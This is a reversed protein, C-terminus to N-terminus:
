SHDGKSRSDSTTLQFKSPTKPNRVAELRERMSQADLGQQEALSSAVALLADTREPTLGADRAATFVRSLLSSVPDIVRRAGAVLDEGHALFDNAIATLGASLGKATAVANFNMRHEALAYKAVLEHKKATPLDRWIRRSRSACDARLRGNLDKQLQNTWANNRHATLPKGECIAVHERVMGLAVRYIEVTSERPKAAKFHRTLNGSSPEAGGDAAAYQRALEEQSWGRAIAVRAFERMIEAPAADRHAELASVRKESM